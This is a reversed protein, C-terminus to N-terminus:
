ECLRHAAEVLAGITMSANSLKELAALLEDDPLTGITLAIVSTDEMTMGARTCLQTILDRTDDDM